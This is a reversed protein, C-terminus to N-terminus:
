THPRTTTPSPAPSPPATPSSWPPAPSPPAKAPGPGPPTAPKNPKPCPTPAPTSPSRCHRDPPPTPTGVPPPPRPPPTGTAGTATLTFQDSTATGGNDNTLIKDLVLTATQDDNTITCAVTAGNPIVLTTGTLTAGECTWAGATYGAQQAESLTYTGANVTFSLSSGAAPNTDGGTATTTAAPTGTAGTATLTFQDSTATGGNDNTLIKDLVLMSPQDDNTITCTVHQALALTLASNTVTVPAGTADLCVWTSATYGAPGGTEALTYTGANVDQDVDPTGTVGTLPTPGTATLTWATPAATGGNDNIVTKVLTLHATQDNNTITCVVTAGNPIVLTTGTLTAGECAWAGATYGAQQAESLTYTGANVTFTLSSGAAPNTDGGTATTTAAPTGTAGTATLTFQDSTATGGNDNTLIKDLVLTAAQDDNTITCTVHQALALTLASNTVTVPAGTADLCVWTSATYGAPGGTEALTYTGANVDQDVDPTGTVGTLPTPGTATLTWATPAATGGNDNIVTKVLTLHATQDNNTITCVVNAGLALDVSGNTITVPSGAIDVCSWTGVYDAPGSESLAYSGANVDKDVDSTGTVGTFPATPGTATLTWDTTAATGGNDNVVAKVLKLHATLDNNTVTCTVNAGLALTLSGGPAAVPAGAADVCVWASALYGAPGGSESLTYTGANVDQDVDATGTVGTLPTPGTATLTWATALATGGNDNIVTKVLKLHATQDDNTISCVIDQGAAVTVQSNTVTVPAGTAEDLCTWTSTTYGPTSAPTESLTFTGPVVAASAGVAPDNVAPDVASIVATSASDKAVLTFATATGGNDNPLVKNLTLTQAQNTITCSAPPIATNDFTSPPVLFRNTTYAGNEYVVVTKVVPPDVFIDTYTCSITKLSWPSPVPTTEAITYDPQAIVNTWNHTGGITINADLEKVDADPETSSGSGNLNVALTTDHVIDYDLADSAPAQDVSYHFLAPSTVGPKSSVKSVDLAGCNSIELPIVAVLDKVASTLAGGTIAAGQGDVAISRCSTDPLIGLHTLNLAVEGYDGSAKGQIADTPPSQPTWVGGVMKAMTFTVAGSSPDFTFIFLFDGNLDGETPALGDGDDLYLMAQWTGTGGCKQYGVYLIDHLQNNINVKEAAIDIWDIDTKGNPAPGGSAWIPGDEIKVGSGAADDVFGFNALACGTTLGTTAGMDINRHNYYIGTTPHGEPTTGPGYPADFDNPGAPNGDIVFDTVPVFPATTAQASGSM